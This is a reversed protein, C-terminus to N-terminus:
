DISSEVNPSVAQGMLVNLEHAQGDEVLPILSNPVSNGDLLVQRIGRHIGEPNEVSIKYLTNGFRYDVKFGPWKGPIGPNISLAKGM